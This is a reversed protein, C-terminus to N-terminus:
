KQGNKLIDIINYKKEFIFRWDKEKDTDIEFKQIEIADNKYDISFELREDHPNAEASPYCKELIFTKNNLDNPFYHIAVSQQVEGQNNGVIYFGSNSLKKPNDFKIAGIGTVDLRSYLKDIFYGSDSTKIQGYAYCIREFGFYETFIGLYLSDNISKLEELNFLGSTIYNRSSHLNNAKTFKQVKRSFKNKRLQFNFFFSTDINNEVLSLNKTKNQGKLRDYYNIVFLYNFLSVAYNTSSKLESKFKIEDVQSKKAVSDRPNEKVTNPKDVKSQCSLLFLIAIIIIKM